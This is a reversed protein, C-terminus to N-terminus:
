LKIQWLSKAIAIHMKITELLLNEDKENEKMLFNETDKDIEIKVINNKIISINTIEDIIALKVRM